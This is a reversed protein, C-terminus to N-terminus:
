VYINQHKINELYHSAFPDKSNPNIPELTKINHSNSGSKSLASIKDGDIRYHKHNGNYDRTPQGVTYGANLGYFTDNPSAIKQGITSGLSHGTITATDTNYKAKAKRLTDDAEKYRSTSKLGGMGLYVDYVVDKMNHTGAVNVMLKKDNPRYWVQQNDNSLGDDKKFGKKEMKKMSKADGYSSNLAHYLKVKKGM